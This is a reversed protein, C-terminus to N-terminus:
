LHVLFPIKKIGLLIWCIVIVSIFSFIQSLQQISTEKLDVEVRNEGKLVPFEMLGNKNISIPVEQGNVMVKWGPFYVTNVRLIAHADNTKTTFLYKSNKLFIVAISGKGQVFEVKNKSRQGIGAVWKTNFSNATYNTGDIFNSRSTYYSDSRQHYYAPTTYGLTLSISLFVLSIAIFFAIRSKGHPLLIFISGSLFSTILIVLSLFRWPYQFYEMLPIKEWAPISFELLFCFIVFFWVLFFMINLFAKRNRKILFPVILVAVFVSLLNAIGIQFSMKGELGAGSFGSGWSPILLEYLEPFHGKFSYLELGVVYQKEILAPIWFISSLGLGLVIIIFSRLIFKKKQKKLLIRFAMYSIAFPFFMLALINHSFIIIALSLAAFAINRYSRNEDLVRDFSLLFAPFLALAWAEAASGRIYVDLIHYPAYTYFISSVLGGKEGWYKKTWLYFFMTGLLSSLFMNLKFADIFSSGFLHLFFAVISPFPYIFTFIPAGHGFNLDQAWRPYWDGGRVAQDFEYFRIVNYEGDHTPPLGAQLLPFVAIISLFLALLFYKYKLLLEM